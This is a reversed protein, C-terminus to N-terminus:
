HEHEMEYPPGHRHPLEKKLRISEPNLFTISWIPLHQESIARLAMGLSYADPFAIVRHVEDEHHRIRVTLETIIGTIGEADAVLNQLEDGAFVRVEGSPLVVRASVVNEKFTGYEYSGFGAGGQALWGAAGSSPASSPYVRLGLGDHNLEREIQEWIASAQVTVTMEKHDVALVRHMGSMDVVVAGKPPLVGGYGSTAWGRPVLKIRERGALKVLDVIQAEDRPRVVAGAVGAPVFPKVLSPMAGIDFSYMKREVRDTRVRDGFIERLQHEIRESVAAM